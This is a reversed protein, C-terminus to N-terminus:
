DIEEVIAPRFDDRTYDAALADCVREASATAQELSAAIVFETAHKRFPGAHNKRRQYTVSYYNM